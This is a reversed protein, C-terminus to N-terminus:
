TISSDPVGNVIVVATGSAPPSAVSAWWIAPNPPGTYAAISDILRARNM